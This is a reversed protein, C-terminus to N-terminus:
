TVVITIAASVGIIKGDNVEAIKAVHGNTALFEGNSPLETWGTTADGYTPDDVASAHTKYYFTSGSLGTSGTVALKTTGATAADESTGTVTALTGAFFILDEYIAKTGSYLFSGFAAANSFEVGEPGYTEPVIPQAISGRVMIMYDVTVPLYHCSHTLVGHFRGFEGMDSPINANNLTDLYGRISEYVTPTVCLVMEERPVGDVFDNKVSELKLIIEALKLPVTTAGASFTLVTGANFGEYFFKREFYRRIASQHNATMASVLDVGSNYMLRDKEEVESLFERDDDITIQVRKTNVKGAASAARATGYAAGAVNKIRVAHIVGGRTPLADFNTNKIMQSLTAKAFNTLQGAWVEQLTDATVGDAALKVSLANQAM